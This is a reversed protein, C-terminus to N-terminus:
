SGDHRYIPTVLETSVIKLPDANDIKCEVIMSFRRNKFDKYLQQLNDVLYAAAGLTGQAHTGALYLFTGKGAPRPLRGIYGYNGNENRDKPSRYLPNPRSRNLV